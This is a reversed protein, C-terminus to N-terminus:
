ETPTLQSQAIAQSSGIGISVNQYGESSYQIDQSNPYHMNIRILDDSVPKQNNLLHNGPTRDKLITQIDSINPTVLVENSVIDYFIVMAINNNRPKQRSLMDEQAEQSYGAEYLTNGSPDDPDRRLQPPCFHKHPLLKNGDRFIVIAEGPVIPEPTEGNISIAAFGTSQFNDAERPSM